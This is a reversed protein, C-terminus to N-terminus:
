CLAIVGPMVFKEGYNSASWPRTCDWKAVHVDSPSVQSPMNHMSPERSDFKLVDVQHDLNVAADTWVITTTHIVEHGALGTCYVKGPVARRLEFITQAHWCTRAASRNNYKHLWRALM